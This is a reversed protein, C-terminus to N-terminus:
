SDSCISRRGSWIRFPSRMWTNGTQSCFALAGEVARVLPRFLHVVSCPRAPVSPSLSRFLFGLLCVIPVASPITVQVLKWFFSCDSTTTANESAESDGLWFRLHDHGGTAVWNPETQQASGDPLRESPEEDSLTRRRRRSANRLSGKPASSCCKFFLM